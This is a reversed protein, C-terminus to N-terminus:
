GTCRWRGSGCARPARTRGSRGSSCCSPRSCSTFPCERRRGAPASTASPSGSRSRPARARSGAGWSSCAPPANPWSLTPISACTRRRHHPQFPRRGALAAGGSPHKRQRFRHPQRVADAGAARAARGPSAEAGPEVGAAAAEELRRFSDHIAWEDRHLDACLRIAKENHPFALPRFSTWRFTTWKRPTTERSDGHRAAEGGRLHGGARRRLVRGYSSEADILRVVRGTVGTEELLERLAAEAITEGLEAFGIPLCWM